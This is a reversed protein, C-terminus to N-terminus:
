TQTVFDIRQTDCGFASFEWKGTTCNTDGAAAAFKYYGASIETMVGTAAVRAGSDLVRFPLVTALLAPTQHDSSLPMFVTYNVATNKKLAPLRDIIQSPLLQFVNISNVAYVVTVCFTDGGNYTGPITGTIEYLGNPASIVAVSLAAAFTGDSAGNHRVSSITPTADPQGSGGGAVYVALEAQYSDGPRYGM